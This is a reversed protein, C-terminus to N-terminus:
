TSYEVSSWRGGRLNWQTPPHSSHVWFRQSWLCVNLSLRDPVVAQRTQQAIPVFYVSVTYLSSFFIKYQASQHSSCSLSSLLRKYRCLSNLSGVLSPGRENTSRSHGNTETEVTLLPWGERTETTAVKANATLNELWDAHDWYATYIYIKDVVRRSRM